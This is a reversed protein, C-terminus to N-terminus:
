PAGGEQTPTAGPTEVTVTVSTEAVNGAADRAAVTLSLTGADGVATRPELLVVWTDDEIQWPGSVTLAEDHAAVEVATVGTDDSARVTLTLAARRSILESPVDLLPAATDLALAQWVLDAILRHGANTSHIDTPEYTLGALDGAFAPALDAVRADVAAAAAVVAENFRTVWGAADLDADRLPTPDWLTTLVIPTDAGVAARLDSLIDSLADTTTTLAQQRNAAPLDQLAELDNGGVTLTIARVPTGNANAAAIEQLAAALQGSDRLSVATEGTRALNRMRMAGDSWTIVRQGIIAAYGRERPLSSGIGVAVSDGLALYVGTPEAQTTSTSLALGALLTVILLLAAPLPLRTM